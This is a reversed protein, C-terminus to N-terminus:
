LGLYKKYAENNPKRGLFREVLAYGDASDGQSLISERYAAGTAPNWVEQSRHNALVVNKGDIWHGIIPLEQSMALAM